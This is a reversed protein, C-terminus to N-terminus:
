LIGIETAKRLMESVNKVDMKRYIRQRHTNVTNVSLFVRDAIQAATLGEASLRIIQIERQSLGIDAIQRSRKLLVDEVYDAIDDNITNAGTVIEECRERIQDPSLSSVDSSLKAIEGAINGSPNRLDKSLFEIIQEKSDSIRQLAASRSRMRRAYEWAQVAIAATVMLALLLILIRYRYRELAREKEQVEFRTQMEQLTEDQKQQIYKQMRFVYDDHIDLADQYRGTRTYLRVLRDDLASATLYDTEELAALAKEFYSIAEENNNGQQFWRSRFLIGNRRLRPSNCSDALAQGRDLWQGASRYIEPDIPDSWRNKNIYLSGIIYCSEAQEELNATQEALLLAERAYSLGEDNRGTDPSIEAYSCLKAKSILIAALEKKFDHERAIDEAELAKKWADDDRSAMIDIGVITHLTRVKLIPNAESLSLAQLAMDMAKEFDQADISRSAEDLLAPVAEDSNSIRSSSSCSSVCGCLVLGALFSTFLINIKMEM